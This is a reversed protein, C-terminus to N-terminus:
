INKFGLMYALINFLYNQEKWVVVEVKGVVDSNKAPGIKSSDLSNGRNDGLYFIEDEALVLYTTTGYSDETTQTQLNPNKIFSEFANYTKRMGEEDDKLYDEYLAYPVTTGKAIRQVVYEDRDSFQKKVITIKDGGTAIVRKILTSDQHHLVVVDGVEFSSGLRVFVGDSIESNEYNNFLPQMSVQKIEYYKFNAFFTISVILVIFFVFFLLLEPLIKALGAQKQQRFYQNDSLQMRKKQEIM